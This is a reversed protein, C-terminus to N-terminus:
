DHVCLVLSQWILTDYRVEQLINKNQLLSELTSLLPVYKMEDRVEVCKRKEGCGKM